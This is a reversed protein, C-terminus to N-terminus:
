KLLSSLQKAWFQLAEFQQASMQGSNLLNQVEQAPDKNPDFEKYFKDFSSLLNPINFFPNNIPPM